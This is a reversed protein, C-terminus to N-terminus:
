LEDREKPQQKNRNDSKGPSSQGKPKEKGQGKVREKGQADDKKPPTKGKRSNHIEGRVDHGIAKLIKALRQDDGGNAEDGEEGERVIELIDSDGYIELDEPIEDLFEYTLTGDEAVNEVILKTASLDLGQPLKGGQQAILTDLLKQLTNGSKSGKTSPPPPPSIVREAPVFTSPHSSESDSDTIGLKENEPSSDISSVVERCRILASENVDRPSLFGPEGCLRPTNIVVLYSCTKLEKVLLITDASAMSCHFQVEVERNKGTKDCVTGDGWKQVLYRSGAEKALAINAAISNQEAVTLDAGPEPASPAKGLTYSHYNQDEEPERAGSIRSLISQPREKFQRIEHNHCYSYTFWDHRYYLCSGSLPQLLSWSHLASPETESPEPPQPPSEPPQPVYCLYSSKAGMKMLQLTYNRNQPESSDANYLEPSLGSDIEKLFLPSQSSGETWPQELFEPEGGKLGETLWKHASENLIPLGNLFSVRYKPFAHLDEPLSQSVRASVLTNAALLCLFSFMVSV